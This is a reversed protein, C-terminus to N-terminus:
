PGDSSHAPNADVLPVDAVNDSLYRVIASEAFVLLEARPWTESGAVCLGLM